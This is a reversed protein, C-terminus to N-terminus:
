ASIVSFANTELIGMVHTLGAACILGTTIELTDYNQTDYRPSKRKSKGNILSRKPPLHCVDM